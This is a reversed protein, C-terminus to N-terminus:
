VRWKIDKCKHCTYYDGLNTTIVDTNCPYTVTSRWGQKSYMFSLNSAKQRFVCNWHNICASYIVNESWFRKNKYLKQTYYDTVYLDADTQFASTAPLPFAVWNWPSHMQDTATVLLVFIFFSFLSANIFIFLWTKIIFCLWNVASWLSCSIDLRNYKKYGLWSKSPPPTFSQTMWAHLTGKIIILCKLPRLLYDFLGWSLPHPKYDRKDTTSRSFFCVLSSSNYALRERGQGKPHVDKSVGAPLWTVSGSARRIGNESSKLEAGCATVVYLSKRKQIISQGCNEGANKNYGTNPLFTQEQM